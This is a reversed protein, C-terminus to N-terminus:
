QGCIEQFTKNDQFWEKEGYQCTQGESNLIWTWTRFITAIDDRKSSARVNLAYAIIDSPSGSPPNDIHRYHRLMEPWTETALVPNFASKYGSLGKSLRDIAKFRENYQDNEDFHVDSLRPYIGSPYPQPYSYSETAFSRYFGEGMGKTNSWIAFGKVAQEPLYLNLISLADAKKGEGYRYWNQIQSFGLSGAEDAGGVTIRYPIKHGWHGTDQTEKKIWADLLRARSENAQAHTITTLGEILRM